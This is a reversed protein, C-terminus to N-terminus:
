GCARKEALYEEAFHAAIAGDAVATVVQRLAKTRVDGAAFVGPLNTRTSEDAVVYGAADLELQGRVLETAPDRGVSIFVGDCALTRTEGTRVNRTVVGALGTAIDGLGAAAGALGEGAGPEARVFEEVVSDWVFEVRGDGEAEVLLDRYVKTARLEDRRHVLVVKRAIRALYLADAAATNGGGVVVVTKDRYSMGDCAACYNVGSGTLEREGEIGLRRTQAGTAVVVARGLHTAGDSTEVEKVDGDLRVRRVEALETTAGFREAGLQMKEGLDFGDVGNEFGPYNDVQTSLAIQGGASLKELVLADLGARAAYLAATYGAPGGGIILVDHIREM